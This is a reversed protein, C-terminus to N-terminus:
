KVRNWMCTRLQQPTNLVLYEELTYQLADFSSLRNKWGLKQTTESVNLELKQTEFPIGSAYFIKPQIGQQALWSVVDQVSLSQDAGFNFTDCHQGKRNWLGLMLYARILESVHLWPRTAHPYRIRLPTQNLHARMIDPFLREQGWDGGGIANGSRAVSINLRDRYAPILFEAATKSASYPDCGGLPSDIGCPEDQPAYVKDTSVVVVAEVHHRVAVELVHALGMINTSFTELPRARGVSVLAQAALHFIIKPQQESVFRDLREVDRIDTLCQAMQLQLCPFLSHKEAPLAYGSVKAGLRHLAYSLWAGKFGTHGTVLVSLDKYEKGNM